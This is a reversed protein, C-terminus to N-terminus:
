RVLKLFERFSEAVEYTVPSLEDSEENVWISVSPNEKNKRFDICIYDNTVLKVIPLLECGILDENDTLRDEIQTLVVDIDYKGNDNNETEAFIGLFRDVHIEQNNILFTKKEPTGGNYKKLFDRYESPLKVRWMEEERMILEETAKPLM